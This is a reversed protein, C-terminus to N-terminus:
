KTSSVSPKTAKVCYKQRFDNILLGSDRFAQTLESTNWANLPKQSITLALKDLAGKLSKLKTSNVVYIDLDTNADTEMINSPHFIISSFNINYTKKFWSSSGTIQQIDKRCIKPTTVQNKDEIVFANTDSLWLNDPSGNKIIAEAEPQSSNCGLLNGLNQVALRFNVENSYPSYKLYSNISEIYSALENSDQIKKSNLYNLFAAAQKKQPLTHKEYFVNLPKFLHTELEHAKLQLDSSNQKNVKYEYRAMCEYLIAQDSKDFKVINYRLRSVASEYRGQQALVWANNLSIYFNYNQTSPNSVLTNYIKSINNKYLTTWKEEQNLAGIIVSEIQKLRSDPTTYRHKIKDTINKSFEWQSSTETSLLADNSYIFNILSQGLIFVLSYDAKSRVARGMGQEIERIIPANLSDSNPLRQINAKDATTSQYPTQDIVTIHCLNGPLDIGDYKNALVAIMPGKKKFDKKLMPLNEASYLKAGKKEWFNAQYNSPTLVLVNKTYTNSIYKLIDRIRDDKISSIVRSFNLIWKQGTDNLSNIKIPNLVAHNEVGLESIFDGADALTASLFLRHKAKSFSSILDVPAYQPRISIENYSIFVDLLNERELIFPLQIANCTQVNSQIINILTDLNDDVTWYPVKMASNSMKNNLINELKSPSQTKLSDRYLSLIDNYQKDERSITLTCAQKVLNIAVHADDVVLGGVKQYAATDFGFKSRGNFVKDFTTVLIAESNIFELPFESGSFKVASVGFNRADIITQEVLQKTPCLYLCPGSNDNLYSQLVLLGLLTKGTGTGLIGILDKENRRPFWDKFFDSQVSRPYDYGPVQNLSSFIQDLKTPKVVDNGSNDLDEFIGM